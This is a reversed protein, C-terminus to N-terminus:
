SNGATPGRRGPEANEGGKGPEPRGTYGQVPAYGAPINSKLYCLHLPLGLACFYDRLVEFHSPLEPDSASRQHPLPHERRGLRTSQLPMVNRPEAHRQCDSPSAPERNVDAKTKSLRSELARLEAPSHLLWAGHATSARAGGRCVGELQEGDGLPSLDTVFRSAGLQAWQPTQAHRSRWSAM